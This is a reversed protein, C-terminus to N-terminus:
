VFPPFHLLSFVYVFLGIGGVLAVTLLTAIGNPSM